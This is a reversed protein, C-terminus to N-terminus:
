RKELQRRTGESVVIAKDLLFFQTLQVVVLVIAVIYELKLVSQILM